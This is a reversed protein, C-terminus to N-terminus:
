PELPDVNFVDKASPRAPVAPRPDSDPALTTGSSHSTIMQQVARMTADAKALSKSKLVQAVSKLTAPEMYEDVPVNGEALMGAVAAEDTWKRTGRRHVIKWGAVAAGKELAQHVEQKAAEIWPELAMVIEMTEEHTQAVPTNAFVAKAAASAMARLHNCDPLVPCFKCHDGHQFPLPAPQPKTVREVGPMLVDEGWALVQGRTYRWHRIAGGGDQARPQVIMTDITDVMHGKSEIERLAGLAYYLLQANWEATVAVGRGYKLDIIALIRSARHYAICDATGFLEIAPRNPRWLWDPSVRQELLIEYGMADLGRVVGAYIKVGDIMEENVTIFHGDQEIITGLVKDLDVINGLLYDEALGHAVTGESAFVSSQKALKSPPLKRTEGFSAPCALLRKAGSAPFESHQKAM